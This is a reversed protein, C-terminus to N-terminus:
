KNRWFIVFLPITFLLAWWNGKDLQLVLCVTLGFFVTFNVLGQFIETRLEGKKM